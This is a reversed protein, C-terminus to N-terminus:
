VDKDRLPTPVFVDRFLSDLQAPALRVWFRSQGFICSLLWSLSSSKGKEIPVKTTEFLIKLYIICDHYHILFWCSPKHEATSTKPTDSAVARMEAVLRERVRKGSPSEM